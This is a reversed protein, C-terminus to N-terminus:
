EDLRLLFSKKAKSRSRGRIAFLKPDVDKAKASLQLGSFGAPTLGSRHLPSFGAPTLGARNGSAPLLIVSQVTRLLCLPRQRSSSQQNLAACHVRGENEIRSRRRSSATQASLFHYVFFIGGSQKKGM